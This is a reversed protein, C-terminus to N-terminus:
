IYHSSDTQTDTVNKRIKIIKAPSNKEIKKKDFIKKRWIKKEEFSKKLNKKLKKEYNIKKIKKEIKKKM